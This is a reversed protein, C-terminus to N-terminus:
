YLKGIHSTPAAATNMQGRMFAMVDELAQELDDLERSTMPDDVHCNMMVDGKCYFTPESVLCKFGMTALVVHLMHYVVGPRFACAM